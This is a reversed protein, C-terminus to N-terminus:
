QTKRDYSILDKIKNFEENLKKQEKPNISELKTLIKDGKDDGPKDVIAPQPAKNYAKTKLKGLLNKKRIQNRKKGLGTDDANAWKPNNGTISSGEINKSVWDENPHIEDYVLNEQGAATFNDIYDKVDDSQVYAKKKMKQIEGNGKPFHEPNMEYKGKSGDKLYDKMKKDLSKFYDKNEKGSAKHVQEYKTIGKPKGMSKINSKEKQEKIINEILSILENETLQFNEKVPFKKGGVNFSNKGEKKAKVLAGTFANGEEVEEDTESLKSGIYSAVMPAAIRAVAGWSEKTEKKNKSKRLMKFDESDIKNNKNKDLKKQGGILEEKINGGCKEKYRTLTDRKEQSSLNGSKLENESYKCFEKNLERQENDVEEVYDFEQTGKKFDNAVDYLDEDIESESKMIGEMKYGCESCEGENMGGGCEECQEAEFMPKKITRHRLTDFKKFPLNEEDFNEEEDEADDFYKKRLEKIDDDSMESFNMGGFFPHIDGELGSGMEEGIEKKLKSVLKESKEELNENLVKTILNNIYSQSVKKM